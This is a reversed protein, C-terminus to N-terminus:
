HSEEGTGWLRTVLHQQWRPDNQSRCQSRWGPQLWSSVNQLITWYHHNWGRPQLLGLLQLGFCEIRWASSTSGEIWRNTKQIWSHLVQSILESTQFSRPKQLLTLESRCKPEEPILRLLILSSRLHRCRSRPKNSQEKDSRIDNERLHERLEM